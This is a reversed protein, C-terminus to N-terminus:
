APHPMLSAALVYVEEPPDSYFKLLGSKDFTFLAKDSSTQQQSMFFKQVQLLKLHNRSNIISVEAQAAFAELLRVDDDTFIGTKKNIAQVCGLVGEKPDVIPMCLITKTYYGMKKDVDQNFRRDQYADPINLTMGTTVCWGAIGATAPFRIETAEESVKSWLEGTQEDLLFVTCKDVDLLRKAEKMMIGILNTLNKESNLMKSVGLLANMRQRAYVASDHILANRLVVGATSALLKVNFEDQRDFKADNHKNLAQLVAVCKGKSDRIPATLM